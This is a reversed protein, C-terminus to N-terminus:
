APVEQMALAKQLIVKARSLQSKSTGESINLMEAIERHSFGEVVYLNFITRYGDSLSQIMKLMDQLALQDFGSIDAVEQSNSETEGIRQWFSRKRIYEVATNIFIRRMWGEFNGEGRFQHLYLFVKIFGDQLLDEAEQESAAYRMCLAFMRPAYLDYLEHQAKRNGKKLDEMLSPWIGTNDAIENM